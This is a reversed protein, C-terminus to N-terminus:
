TGRPSTPAPASPSAASSPAASATPPAAPRRASCSAPPSGANPTTPIAPATPSRARPPPRRPPRFRREVGLRHHRLRRHLRRRPLQARTRCGLGHAPRARHSPLHRRRAAAMEPVESPPPNVVHALWTRDQAWGHAALLEWPTCGHRARCVEDDVHEYLHTHLRVADHDAALAALEDFLRPEDVHPGCPALAVRVRSSPSADHLATVLAECHRVVEDVSQTVDPDPGETISGRCAHLRVGVERAADVTAEVYDLSPGAPFFYHQDAVTTM